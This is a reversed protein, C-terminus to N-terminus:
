LSSFAEELRDHFTYPMKDGRLEVQTRAPIRALLEALASALSEVSPDAVMGNESDVLVRAGARSSVLVSLGAVLAENVVAGFAEVRSPLVLVDGLLFVASLDPGGRQGLFRVDRGSQRALAEWEERCPGSGVVLLTVSPDDPLARILLDVNKLPILRGVFLVVKRGALGLSSFLDEAVPLAKELDARLRVEDAIIPFSVGKGFHRRYWAATEESPVILNDLFLPVIRRALRHRFSFDNGTIMDISDDCVSVVRFRRRGLRSFLIMWLTTLSFESVLVTEPRYQRLLSRFLRYTRPGWGPKPYRHDEFQALGEVRSQDFGLDVTRDLHFIAYDYERALTNCLDIRYPAIQIGFFLNM